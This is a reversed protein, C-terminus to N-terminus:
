VIWQWLRHLLKCVYSPNPFKSSFSDLPGMVQHIISIVSIQFFHIPYTTSFHTKTRWKYRQHSTKEGSCIMVNSLQGGTHVKEHSRWSRIQSKWIHNGIESFHIATLQPTLIKVWPLLHANFISHLHRIM